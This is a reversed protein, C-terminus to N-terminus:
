INIMIQQMKFFLTIGKIIVFKLDLNGALKFVLAGTSRRFLIKFLMLGFHSFLRSIPVMCNRNICGNKLMAKVFQKQQPSFMSKMINNNAKCSDTKM